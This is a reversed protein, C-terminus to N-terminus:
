KQNSGILGDLYASMIKQRSLSLRRYRYVVDMEEDTIDLTLPPDTEEDFFESMTIGFGKCIAQLTPITPYTRRNFLNSLTSNSLGSEQALKYTTWHRQDLLTRIRNLVDDISMSM